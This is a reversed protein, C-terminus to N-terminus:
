MQSVVEKVEKANKAEEPLQINVPKNINKYILTMGINMKLASIGITYNIEEKKIFNTNKDVYITYSTANITYKMGQMGLDKGMQEKLKEADPVINVKYCTVGNVAEEGVVKIKTKPDKLIEITKEYRKTEDDFGTMGKSEKLDSKPMKTWQGAQKTYIEDGILYIEMSQGMISMSMYMKKNETDVKGKVPMTYEMGAGGYSIEGEFTYQKVNKEAEIVKNADFGKEEVCGSLLLVGAVIIAGLIAYRTEM